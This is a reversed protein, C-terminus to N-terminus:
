FITNTVSADGGDSSDGNQLVNLTLSIAYASSIQNFSFKNLFFFM